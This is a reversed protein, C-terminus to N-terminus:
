REGLRGIPRRRSTPVVLGCRPWLRAVLYPRTGSFAEFGCALLGQAGAESLWEHPPVMVRDVPLGTRFEFRETRRIAQAAPVSSEALSRPRALEDPIHDNGHVCLSLYRQERRFLRVVDRHFWRGDFPVMAISVHYGHARASAALDAYSIHGYTPRRLNPDDIVYAARIGPTEWALDPIANRVFQALALLALSRRPTLRSRLADRVGLEPPAIAVEHHAVDGSVEVRWGPRGAVTALVEGDDDEPLSAGGGYAETLRARRLPRALLHHDALLVQESTGADSEEARYRISPLGAPPAQDGTAPFLIVGDLGALADPERGEFVVPYARQLAELLRARARRERAPVVGIVACERPPPM